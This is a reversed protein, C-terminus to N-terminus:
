WCKLVSQQDQKWPDFPNLFKQNQLIYVFHLIDVLIGQNM